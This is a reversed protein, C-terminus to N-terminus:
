KNYSELLDSVEGGSIIDIDDLSVEVDVNDLAEYKYKTSNWQWLKAENTAKFISDFNEVSPPVPFDYRTPYTLVEQKETGGIFELENYYHKGDGITMRTKGDSCFVVIPEGSDLLPNAREVAQQQGRKLRYTHNIIQTAM